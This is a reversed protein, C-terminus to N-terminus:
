YKNDLTSLDLPGGGFNSFERSLTDFVIYLPPIAEDVGVKNLAEECHCNFIFPSVRDRACDLSCRGQM